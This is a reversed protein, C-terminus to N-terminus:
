TVSLVDFWWAHSTRHPRTPPFSAGFKSATGGPVKSRLKNAQLLPVVTNDILKSSRVLSWPPLSM